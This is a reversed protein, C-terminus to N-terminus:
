RCLKAIACGTRKRLNPQLWEQEAAEAIEILDEAVALHGSGYATAAAVHIDWIFTMGYRALIRSALKEAPSPDTIM